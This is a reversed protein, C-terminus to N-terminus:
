HQTPLQQRTAADQGRLFTFRVDVGLVPVVANARGAPITVNGNSDTQAISFSYGTQHAFWPTFDLQPGLRCGVEARLSTLQITRERSDTEDKLLRIHTLAEYSLRPRLALSGVAFVKELDVRLRANTQGEANALGPFSRELSLRQGFTLPGVGGRHRLLAEPVLVYSENASIYALTGGGSWHESWFHEYGASVRREDFGLFRRADAAGNNDTNRQGRLALVLYDNGALAVEAQVEPWLQPGFLARRAQAAAPRAGLLALLLAGAFLYKM